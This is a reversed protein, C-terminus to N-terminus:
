RLRHGACTAVMLGYQAGTLNTANINQNTLNDFTLTIAEVATPDDLTIATTGCGSITQSGTLIGNTCNFTAATSYVVAASALGGSLALSALLLLTKKM